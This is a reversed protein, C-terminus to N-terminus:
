RMARRRLILGLGGLAILTLCAPEPIFEYAMGAYGIYHTNNDGVYVSLTSNTVRGLNIAWVENGPQWRGQDIAGPTAFNADLPISTDLGASIGWQNTSYDSGVYLAYLDYVGFPVTVSTKITVSIGGGSAYDGGQYILPIDNTVHGNNYIPFNLSEPGSWQGSGTGAWASPDNDSARVTNGGGGSTPVVYTLTASATVAQWLVCTAVAMAWAFGNKGVRNRNM